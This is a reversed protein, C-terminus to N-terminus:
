DKKHCTRRLCSKFRRMASASRESAANTAPSALYLKLLVIIEPYFDVQVGINNKMYNIVPSVTKENSDLFKTKLIKLQTSLRYQNTEESYRSLVDEPQNQYELGNIVNLILQKINRIARCGPQSFRTKICNTVTDIADFYIRKYFTKLDSVEDYLSAENENLLKAPRKRKRPLSPQTVELVEVQKSRLSNITQLTLDVIEKGQCSTLFSKQLTKSLNGSDRLVLQLITVGYFSYFTAMQSNVCFIISKIEPEFNRDCSEDWVQQLAVWNDLIIKM